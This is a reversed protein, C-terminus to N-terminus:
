NLRLIAGLNLGLKIGLNLFIGANCLLCASINVCANIIVSLSAAFGDICLNLKAMLNNMSNTMNGCLNGITVNVNANILGARRMYGQLTFNVDLIISATLNTM